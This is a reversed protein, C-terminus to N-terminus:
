IVEQFQVLEQYDILTSMAQNEVYIGAESAAAVPTL